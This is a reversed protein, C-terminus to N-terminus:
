ITDVNDDSPLQRTEFIAGCSAGNEFRRGAVHSYGFQDDYPPVNWRGVSNPQEYLAYSAMPNLKM